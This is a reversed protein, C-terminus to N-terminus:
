GLKKKIEDLNEAVEIMDTWKGRIFNRRQM